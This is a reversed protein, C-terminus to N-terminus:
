RSYYEIILHEQISADIDSRTPASLVRGSLTIPDLSLWTPASKHPIEQQLAKFYETERSNERIAIVDGPKVIYSPIDTKKGNVSFHGHRILQRAQRRSEAFGLRFIVNDLRSELLQLLNEGAAGPRRKAADLHKRFQRELVGYIYKVKQKEQLQLGYESVKHRRQVQRGPPYPRKNPEVACKPTFCRNGKLLLKTGARRCIKCAPGTYRSM